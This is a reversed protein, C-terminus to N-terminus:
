PFHLMQELLAFAENEMINKWNFSIEFTEFHTNHLLPNILNTVCILPM